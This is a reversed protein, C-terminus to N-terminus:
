GLLKNLRKKFWPQWPGDLLEERTWDPVGLLRKVIFEVYQQQKQTFPEPLVKSYGGKLSRVKYQEGVEEIMEQVVQIDQEVNGVRYGVTVDGEVDDGEFGACYEGADGDLDAVLDDDEYENMEKRVGRLYCRLEGLTGKPNDRIWGMHNSAVTRKQLALEEKTKTTM